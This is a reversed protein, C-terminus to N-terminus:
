MVERNVRYMDLHLNLNDALKGLQKALLLIPMNDTDVDEMDNERIMSQMTRVENRLSTIIRELDVPTHNITITDM